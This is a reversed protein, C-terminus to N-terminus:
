SEKYKLKREKRGEKGGEEWKRVLGSIDRGGQRNNCWSGGVPQIRSEGPHLLLPRLVTVLALQGKAPLPYVVGVIPGVVNVMHIPPCLVLIRNKHGLSLVLTTTLQGLM